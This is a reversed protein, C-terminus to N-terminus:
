LHRWVLDFFPRFLFGSLWYMAWIGWTSWRGYNNWKNIIAENADNIRKIEDRYAVELKGQLDAFATRWEDGKGEIINRVEQDTYLRQDTAIDYKM